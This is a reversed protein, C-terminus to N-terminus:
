SFTTSSIILPYETSSHQRGPHPATYINRLGVSRLFTDGGGEPCFFGRAVFSRSCTAAAAGLCSPYWFLMRFRTKVSLNWDRMSSKLSLPIGRSKICQQALVNTERCHRLMLVTTVSTVYSLSLTRRFLFKSHAIQIALDKIVLAKGM